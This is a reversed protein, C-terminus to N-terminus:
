SALLVAAATVTFGGVAALIPLDTFLISDPADTRRPGGLLLLYRFMAFAVFPLTLAMAGNEPTNPSEITYVAYSLLASAATVTLMQQLFEASYSGLVSRHGVADDGLMRFEAWRKSVAFFLAVASAVVYLWPSIDVDITTAGAVARGIVGATLILLDLIAVHKLLASYLAMVGVYGGLVLGGALDLLLALGTALIALGVAATVATRIGLAGSAIPRHRKKPHLRDADRDFADNVLYTASSALCWLAAMASIRLLMAGWDGPDDLKWADGASFVFAAFVVVNKPWQQPRMARALPKM